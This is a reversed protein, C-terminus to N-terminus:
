WMSGVVKRRVFFSFSHHKFKNENSIVNEMLRFTFLVWASERVRECVITRVCWVGHLNYLRYIIRLLEIFFNRELIFSMPHFNRNLKVSGRLCYYFIALPNSLLFAPLPRAWEYKSSFHVSQGLQHRKKSSGLLKIVAVLIRNLEVRISNNTRLIHVIQLWKVLEHLSMWQNM